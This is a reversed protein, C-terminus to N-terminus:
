FLKKVPLIGKGNKQLLGMVEKNMMFERPQHTLNFRMVEVGQKKLALISDNVKILAPDIDPSCLGSACCMPPDYIEIKM